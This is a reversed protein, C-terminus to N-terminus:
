LIAWFTEIGLELFNIIDLRRTLKTTDLRRISRGESSIWSFKKGLVQHDILKM